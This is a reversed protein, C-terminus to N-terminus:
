RKNPDLERSRLRIHDPTIEVLEDDDIWELGFEISIEKAPKLQITDDSGAARFNTLQKQKTINVDLDTKKAHEGVIMGRYCETGPEVFFQGRDELKHLAYPTAQGDRDAILAGTTRRDFDGEVPRYEEFITNLIGSGRTDTQFQSRYGIMGRTPVTFELRVRNGEVSEYRQMEGSRDGLEETVAGVYQRPVDVVARVVPEKVTGNVQRTLVEPKGVLMEYGERRMEELVVALQLQGRGLLQWRDSRSTELGISVNNRDEQRLRELLKRGTVFDGDQGSFPGDNPMITIGVTPEEVEIRPLVSPNSPGTITDGIEVEGSGAVAVIEGASVTDVSQKQLGEYVYLDTVETEIQGEQGQDILVKQNRDLSGSRLRGIALRGVYDSYDLDSVLLQLSDKQGTDPAPIDEIITEFLPTLDRGERSPDEVAYGETAVSYLIPFDLQRDSANLELFLEFVDDVVQSPRADDRDIKNVCLILALDQRIAKDLVFRTQPLPGEGADVLLLAGDVMNLVREVEGGFDSHGPTDVLNIKTDRYMLAGNKSAITIGREKELDKTDMVREDVSENSRFVGSQKLLHDM